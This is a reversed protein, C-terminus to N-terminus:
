DYHNSVEIICVAIVRALDIDGTASRPLEPPDPVFILRLRTDIRMAYQGARNGRLPHCYTPPLNLRFVALDDAAELAAIRLFIHKAAAAGYHKQCFTQSALEAALRPTRYSIKL